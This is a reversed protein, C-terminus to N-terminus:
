LKEEGKEKPIACCVNMFMKGGLFKVFSLALRNEADVTMDFHSFMGQINRMRMDHFFQRILVLLGHPPAGEDMRVRLLLAWQNVPAAILYGIIRSDEEIVWTWDPNLLIQKLLLDDSYKQPLYEGYLLTRAALETVTNPM